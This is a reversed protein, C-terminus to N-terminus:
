LEGANAKETPKRKRKSRREDDDSDGPKSSATSSPLRSAEATRPSPARRPRPREPTRILLCIPPSPPPPPTPRRQVVIPQSDGEMPANQAQQQVVATRETKKLEREALERATLERADALGHTKKKAFTRKPVADPQGIPLAQEVVRQQALQLLQQESARGVARAQGDFRHREEENMRARLVSIEDSVSAVAQRPPLNDGEGGEDGNNQEEDTYRSQWNTHYISALCLRPAGFRLCLLSLASSLTLTTGLAVPDQTGSWESLALPAVVVEFCWSEIGLVVALDIGIVVIFSNCSSDTCHSIDVIPTLAFTDRFDRRTATRFWDESSSQV